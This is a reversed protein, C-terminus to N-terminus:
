IYLCLSLYTRLGNGQYKVPSFFICPLFLLFVHYRPTAIGKKNRFLFLFVCFRVNFSSLLRMLLQLLWPRKPRPPSEEHVPGWLMWTPHDDVTWWGLIPIYIYIGIYGNIKPNGIKWTPHNGMGLITLSNLGQCMGFIHFWGKLELVVTEAFVGSHEVPYESRWGHLLGSPIYIAIASLIEYTGYTM